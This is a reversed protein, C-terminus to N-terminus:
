FYINFFFVYLWHSFIIYIYIYIIFVKLINIRDTENKQDLLLLSCSMIDILTNAKELRSNDQEYIVPEGNNIRQLKNEDLILKCRVIFKELVFLFGWRIFNHKSNLLGCFLSVPIPVLSCDSDQSGACIIHKQLIKISSCISMKGEIIESLLLEVLWIYGNHRYSSRESHLLFHLTSWSLKVKTNVDKEIIGYKIDNLSKYSKTIQSMYLFENDLCTFASIISDLKRM